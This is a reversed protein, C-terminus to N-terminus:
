KALESSAFELIGCGRSLGKENKFLDFNVVEGVQESFLDKV